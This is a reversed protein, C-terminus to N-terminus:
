QNTMRSERGLERLYEITYIGTDHGDSFAIAYAYNGVPSMARIALPQTEAASLVPLLPAPQPHSRKERCTACPCGDRLERVTYERVTGDSWDIRLRNSAVLALNSPVANMSHHGIRESGREPPVLAVDSTAKKLYNVRTASVFRDEPKDTIYATLARNDSVLGPAGPGSTLAM